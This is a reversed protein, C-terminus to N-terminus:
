CTTQYPRPLTAVTWNFHSSCSAHQFHLEGTLSHVFDAIDLNIRTKMICVRRVLAKEEAETWTASPDFRHTGEFGQIPKYIETAEPAEFVNNVNKVLPADGSTELSSTESDVERDVDVSVYSIDRGGLTWWRRAKVTKPVFKAESESPSPSAEASVTKDIATKSIESMVM